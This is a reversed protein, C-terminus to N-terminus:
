IIACVMSHLYHGRPDGLWSVNNTFSMNVFRALLGSQRNAEKKTQQVPFLLIGM